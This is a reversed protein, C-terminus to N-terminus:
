RCVFSQVAHASRAHCEGFRVSKLTCSSRSGPLVGHKMWMHVGYGGGEGGLIRVDWAVIAENHQANGMFSFSKDKPFGQVPCATRAVQSCSEESTFSM